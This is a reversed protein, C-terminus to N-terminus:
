RSWQGAPGYDDGAGPFSCPTLTKQLGTVEIAKTLTNFGAKKALPFIPMQESVLCEGMSANAQALGFVSLGIGSEM